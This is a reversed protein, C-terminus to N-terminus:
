CLQWVEALDKHYLLVKLIELQIKEVEAFIVFLGSGRCLLVHRRSNGVMGSM